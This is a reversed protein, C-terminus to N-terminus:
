DNLDKYNQIFDSCIGYCNFDTENTTEPLVSISQKTLKKGPYTWLFGKSTITVDDNQHWFFHAGLIKLPILAEINKAHCWLKNNELYDESVKYKGYDHGLFFDGNIFWVDIEVQFGKEIALNIYNPSNECNSHPGDLNGRHSILIM